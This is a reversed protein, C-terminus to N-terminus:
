ARDMMTIRCTTQSICWKSCYCNSLVEEGVDIHRLARVHCVRAPRGREYHYMVSCSPRCSHNLLAVFPLVGTGLPIFEGDCMTWNNAAFRALHLTLTRMLEGEEGGACAIWNAWEDSGVLEKTMVAVHAMSEKREETQHPSRFHSVLRGFEAFHPAERLRMLRALLVSQPLPPRGHTKCFAQLGRCEAKHPGVWDQRQCSRSCYLALGCGSCRQLTSPGTQPSLWCCWCLARQKELHLVSALPEDSCVVEGPAFRRAAVLYRGQAVNERVELGHSRAWAQAGASITTTASLPAAHPSEIAGSSVSM